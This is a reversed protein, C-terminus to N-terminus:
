RGGEKRYLREYRDVLRDHVFQAARERAAAALRARLPPSDALKTVAAAMAAPDSPPILLGEVGDTAVEPVAGVQCAIVPLGAQMAELVGLGFSEYRSHHIFVDALALYSPVEERPVEGTLTVNTLGLEAVRRRLLPELEGGGVLILRCDPRALHHWAELFVLPEKVPYHRQVAVFVIEGPEIDLAHRLAAVRTPDASAPAVGHPIVEIDRRLGTERALRALDRSPATVVDAGRCVALTIFQKLRPMRAFYYTDYGMLSVVLRVRSLRRAVLGALGFAPHFLHIAEFPALRAWLAGQVVLYGVLPWPRFRIWQTVYTEGPQPPRQARDALPALVTVQHGRRGLVEAVSAVVTQTGGTTPYFFETVLAIKM